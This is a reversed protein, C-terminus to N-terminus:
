KPKEKQDDYVEFKKKKSVFKLPKFLKVEAKRKRVAEEKEFQKKDSEEMEQLAEEFLGINVDGSRDTSNKM